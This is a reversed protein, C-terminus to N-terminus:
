FTTLLAMKMRVKPGTYDYMHIWANVAFKTGILVPLAQHDTRKDATLPEANYVSPWLVASGKKPQVTLGLKPFDTGGGGGEPLDSLYIFFTLIRPGCQRGKQNHIYDSFFALLFKPLDLADHVILLLYCPIGVV